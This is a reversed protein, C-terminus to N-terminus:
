VYYKYVPNELLFVYRSNAKLDSQVTSLSSAHAERRRALNYVFKVM